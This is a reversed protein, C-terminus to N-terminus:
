YVSSGGYLSYSICILCMDNMTDNPLWRVEWVGLITFDNPLM